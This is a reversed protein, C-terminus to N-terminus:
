TSIRYKSSCVKFLRKFSILFRLLYQILVYGCGCMHMNNTLCQMENIYRRLLEESTEILPTTMSSSSASHVHTIQSSSPISNNENLPKDSSMVLSVSTPNSFSNQNNQYGPPASISCSM